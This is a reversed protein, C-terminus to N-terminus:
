YLIITVLNTSLRLLQHQVLARAWGQGSQDRDKARALSPGPQYSSAKAGPRAALSPVRALRLSLSTVPLHLQQRWHAESGLVELIVSFVVQFKFPCAGLNRRTRTLSTHCIKLFGPGMPRSMGTIAQTLIMIVALERARSAATGPQRDRYQVTALRATTSDVNVTVPLNLNAARSLPSDRPGVLWQWSDNWIPSRLRWQTTDLHCELKCELTRTWLPLIMVWHRLWQCHHRILGHNM